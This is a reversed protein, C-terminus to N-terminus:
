RFQTIKPCNFSVQTQRITFIDKPSFTKQYFHRKTFIDKLSFINIFNLELFLFFVFFFLLFFLWLFLPFLFRWFLSFCIQFRFKKSFLFFALAHGHGTALQMSRLKTCKLHIQLRNKNAFLSVHTCTNKTILPKSQFPPINKEM